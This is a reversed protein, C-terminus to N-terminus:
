VAKLFRGGPDHVSLFKLRLSMFRKDVPVSNIETQHVFGCVEAFVFKKLSYSFSFKGVDIHKHSLIVWIPKLPGPIMFCILFVAIGRQLLPELTHTWERLLTRWFAILSPCACCVKLRAYQIHTPGCPSFCDATTRDQIYLSESWCKRGSHLICTLLVQGIYNTLWQM